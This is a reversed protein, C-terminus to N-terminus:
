HLERCNSEKMDVSAGNWSLTGSLSGCMQEFTYLVTANKGIVVTPPSDGTKRVTLLSLKGAADRQYVAIAGYDQNLEPKPKGAKAPDDIVSAVLLETPGEIKWRHLTTVAPRYVITGSKTAGVDDRTKHMDDPLLAVAKAFLQADRTVLDTTVEATAERLASVANADGSEAARGIEELQAASAAANGTGALGRALGHRATVLSPRVVLAAAFHRNAEELAKMEPHENTGRLALGAEHLARALARRHTFCTDAGLEKALAAVDTTGARIGAEGRALTTLRPAIAADLSCRKTTKDPAWAPVTGVGDVVAAARPPAGAERAFGVSASPTSADVVGPELSRSKDCGALAALLGLATIAVGRPAGRGFPSRKM